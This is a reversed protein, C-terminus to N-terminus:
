QSSASQDLARGLRALSKGPDDGGAIFRATEEATIGDLMVETEARDRDRRAAECDPPPGSSLRKRVWAAAARPLRAIDFGYANTIQRVQPGAGVNNTPETRRIWDIFGHEKLRALARVVSNRSRSIRKCITDIAPELRGTKWDAIRMLEKLVRVGIQGLPGNGMGPQKNKEDYSEAAELMADRFIYQERKTRGFPRWIRHEREGAHRSDRRVPQFTRRLKPGATGNLVDGIARATLRCGGVPIRVPWDFRQSHPRRDGGKIHTAVDYADKM